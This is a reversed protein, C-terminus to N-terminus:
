LIFQVIISSIGILLVIIGGFRISFIYLDSPESNQSNKWSETITFIIKPKVFMTIGVMTFLIGILVYM